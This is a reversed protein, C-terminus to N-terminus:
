AVGLLVLFLLEVEHGPGETTTEEPLARIDGYHGEPSASVGSPLTTSIRWDSALSDPLPLLGDLPSDMVKSRTFPRPIHRSAVDPMNRSYEGHAKNTLVLVDM